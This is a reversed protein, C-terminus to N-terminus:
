IARVTLNTYFGNVINLSGGSDQYAYVAYIEGPTVPLTSTSLHLYTDVASLASMSTIPIYNFDVFTSGNNVSRRLKVARYGVGNADIQLNLDLQIAYVGGPITIWGPNAVDWMDLEDADQTTWTVQTWDNNALALTSARRVKTLVPYQGLISGSVDQPTGAQEGMSRFVLAKAGSYGAVIDGPEVIVSTNNGNMMSILNQASPQGLATEAAKLTITGQHGTVQNHRAGFNNAVNSTYVTYETLSSDGSYFTMTGSCGVFSIADCEEVAFAQGGALLAKCDTFASLNSNSRVEIGDDALKRNDGSLVFGAYFSPATTVRGTNIVYCGMIESHTFPQKNNGSQVGFVFGAKNTLAVASNRYLAGRQGIVRVGIEVAENGNITLDQIGGGDLPYEQALPTVFEVVAKGAPWTGTKSALITTPCLSLYAAQKAANNAGPLLAISTFPAKGTGKLHINPTNITITSSVLYKGKPFIIVGGSTLSDIAAQIAATDDAVGDGVAGFDKVSVIDQLKSEVTRQVAGTGAQIFGGGLDALDRTKTM